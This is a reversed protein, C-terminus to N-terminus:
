GYIIGYFGMSDMLDGLDEDNEEQFIMAWGKGENIRFILFIGRLVIGPGAAELGSTRPFLPPGMQYPIIHTTEPTTLYHSYPSYAQNTPFLKSITM